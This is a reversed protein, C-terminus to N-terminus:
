AHRVRKFILLSGFFLSTLGLALFVNNMGRNSAFFPEKVSPERAYAEEIRMHATELISTNIVKICSESLATAGAILGKLDAEPTKFEHNTFILVSACLPINQAIPETAQPPPLHLRVELMGPIRLLSAEIEDIVEIQQIRRREESTSLLNASKKIEGSPPLLLYNQNLVAMSRSIDGSEVSLLWSGDSSLKREVDVGARALTLYMRQARSESLGQVLNERCGVLVFLLLLCLKLMM